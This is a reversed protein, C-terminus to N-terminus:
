LLGKQTSQIEELTMKRKAPIQKNSAEIWERREDAVSGGNEKCASTLAQEIVNFAANVALPDTPKKLNTRLWQLNTLAADDPAPTLRKGDRIFSYGCMKAAGVFRNFAEIDMGVYEAITMADEALEPKLEQESNKM